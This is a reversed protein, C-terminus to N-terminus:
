LASPLLKGQIFSLCDDLPIDDATDDTRGKYELTDADLGRDSLVLRHPIGILELNAFMVGPREKSDCLLVDIGATLFREYLSEAM